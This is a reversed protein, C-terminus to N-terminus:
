KKKRPPILFKYSAVSLIDAIRQLTEIEPAFEGRELKSISSSNLRLDEALQEQTYGCRLRYKRINKGIIKKINSMSAFM